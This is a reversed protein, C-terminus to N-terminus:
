KELFNNLHFKESSFALFLLLFLTLININHDLSPVTQCLCVSLSSEWYVIIVPSLQRYRKSLLQRYNKSVDTM